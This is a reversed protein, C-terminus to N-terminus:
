AIGIAADNLGIAQRHRPSFLELAQRTTGRGGVDAPQGGGTGFAYPARGPAVAVPRCPEVILFILHGDRGVRM